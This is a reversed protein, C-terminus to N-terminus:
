CKLRSPRQVLSARSKATLGYVDPREQLEGSNTSSSPSINSTSRCRIRCSFREKATRRDGRQNARGAMRAGTRRPPAAGRRARLRPQLRAHRRRVALALAHRASLRFARQPVHLRDTRACQGRGPPQHVTLRGGVTSDGRYGRRSLYSPDQALKRCCRRRSSRIPCAALDSQGAHLADENSFIPTPTDPKGVIVRARHVIADGDLMHSLSIRFMSRSAGNAWTARSGAGCRWTPSFRRQPPPGGFVTRQDGRRGGDRRAGEPRWPPRSRASQPPEADNEVAAPPDNQAVAMSTPAQESGRRPGADTLRRLEDRLARYGKQPPNFDALRKAPDRRRRSKPSRTPLIPSAPRATVLRSVRAPAIRSGSAQEAYTM